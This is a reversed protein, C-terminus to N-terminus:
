YPAEAEYGDLLVYGTIVMWIALHVFIRYKRYLRRLLSPEKEEEVENASMSSSSGLEKVKEEDSSADKVDVTRGRGDAYAPAAPEIVHAPQTGHAVQQNVISM